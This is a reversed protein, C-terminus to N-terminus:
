GGRMQAVFHAAMLITAAISVLIVVTAFATVFAPGSIWGDRMTTIIHPRALVLMCIILAGSTLPVTISHVYSYIWAGRSVPTQLGQLDRVHHGRIIYETRQAGNLETVIRRYGNHADGGLIAYTMTYILFNLLGIAIIVICIQNRRRRPLRDVPCLPVTAGNQGAAVRAATGGNEVPGGGAVMDDFSGTGAM